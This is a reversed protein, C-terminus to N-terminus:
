GVLMRANTEMGVQQVYVHGMVRLVHEEKVDLAASTKVLFVMTVLLVIIVSNM